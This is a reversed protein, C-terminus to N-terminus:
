KELEALKTEAAELAASLEAVQRKLSSIISDKHDVKIGYEVKLTDLDSEAAQARVRMDFLQRELEAIKGEPSMANFEKKKRLVERDHASLYKMQEEESVESARRPSSTERKPKSPAEAQTAPKSTTKKEQSTEKSVVASPKPAAPAPAPETKPIAEAKPLPESIIEEEQSHDADSDEDYDESETSVGDSPLAAAKEKARLEDYTGRVSREGKDIQEIVEPPANNTIYKIRDYQKGSIGLKEGVADRVRYPTTSNSTPGPDRLCSEKNRGNGATSGGRSQGEAKREDAKAREIVEILKGYYSQESCTFPERQENESIEISLIAGADTPSVVNVEIETLGMSQIAKIRRLGAILQYNGDGLAMVTVPNILGNKKIDEALEDIKTVDKRIREKIIISEIAAKVDLGGM